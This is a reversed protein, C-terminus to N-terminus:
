FNLEEIEDSELACEAELEDQFLGNNMDKIFNKYEAITEGDCKPCISGARNKYMFFATFQCKPCTDLKSLISNTM